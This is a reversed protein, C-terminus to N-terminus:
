KKKLCYKKLRILSTSYVSVYNGRVSMLVSEEKKRKGCSSSNKSGEWDLELHSEHWKKM